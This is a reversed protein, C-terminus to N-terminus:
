RVDSRGMSSIAVRPNAAANSAGIKTSAVRRLLLQRRRNDRDTANWDTENSAM